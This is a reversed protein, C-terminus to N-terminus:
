LVLSPLSFLLFLPFLRHCSYSFLLLLVVGSHSRCFRRVEDCIQPCIFHVHADMGGATVILGEGAIVETNVGVTMGPTVGQM